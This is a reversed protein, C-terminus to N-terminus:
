VEGRVRDIQYFITVLCANLKDLKIAGDKYTDPRQADMMSNNNRDTTMDANTLDIIMAASEFLSGTIIYLIQKQKM